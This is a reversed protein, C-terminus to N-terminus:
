EYVVGFVALCLQGEERCEKPMKQGASCLLCSPMTILSCM